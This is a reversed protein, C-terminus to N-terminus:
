SITEVFNLLSKPCFIQQFCIKKVKINLSQAFEYNLSVFLSTDIDIQNLITWEIIYNAVQAIKNIRKYNM